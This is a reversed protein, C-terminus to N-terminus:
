KWTSTGQSETHSEPLVQIAVHRPGTLLTKRCGLAIRRQTVERASLVYIPSTARGQIYASAETGHIAYERPAWDPHTHPPGGAKLYQPGARKCRHQSAGQAHFSLPLPVSTAKMTQKMVTVAHFYPHTITGRLTHLMSPLTLLTRTRQLGKTTEDSCQM